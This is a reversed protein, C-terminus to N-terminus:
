FAVVRLAIFIVPFFRNAGELLTLPWEYSHISLQQEPIFTNTLYPLALAFLGM